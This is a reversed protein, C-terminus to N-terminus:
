QAPKVPIAKRSRDLVPHNLDADNRTITTQAIATPSREICTIQPITHDDVMQRYADDECWSLSGVAMTKIMTLDTPKAPSRSAYIVQEVTAQRPALMMRRPFQPAMLQGPAQEPVYAYVPIYAPLAALLVLAPLLKRM